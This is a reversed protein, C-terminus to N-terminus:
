PLMGCPRAAVQELAAVIRGLASNEWMRFDVDEAYQGTQQMLLDLDFDGATVGAGEACADFANCEQEIHVPVM